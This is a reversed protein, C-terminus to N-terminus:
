TADIQSIMEQYNGTRQILGQDLLIITDCGKLTTVRHAVILVTLDADLIHITEMVANETDHDLASTAEDFVLVDAQQYLARAIGIRQRQGGSLRTGQEGVLTDYGHEWSEITEGIQARWAALKVQEHDIRDKQVGFAINETISADALFIIQPVHAIHAQWARHNCEEIERGDIRITGRNPQLLGMIIDLLTSKGSGTTGIFGVRSGRPIELDIGRLIWPGESSYRFHVDCISIKKRYPLLLPCNENELAPLPQQLLVLVDSLSDQGGLISTWGAYGQQVLPLLRQAALALAGLIPIASVLGESRNSLMYAMLGILMIGCAEIVPRPAGGMVAINSLARRLERDTQQFIRYYTEQLGQLLVDRIGGLGEQVVQAVRNQCRSVRQSNRDLRTKTVSAVLCYLSGFCLFAISTLIADTFLMFAVITVVITTSTIITLTPIIIFYVIINIKTMLAAVIESSNRQVHVSYPQYLTRRYAISGLDNGIANALYTQGWLLGLRLAGSVIATLCLLLTLPLRLQHPTTLDLAIILPKAMPHGYIKGPAILAGLFPMVMGLSALEAVTGALMLAGLAVLQKRRNHPIHQWLRTLLFFTKQRCSTAMSSPISGNVHNTVFM